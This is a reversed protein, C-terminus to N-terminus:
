VAQWGRVNTARDTAVRRRRQDGHALEIPVLTSTHRYTLHTQRQAQSETARISRQGVTFNLLGNVRDDRRQHSLV